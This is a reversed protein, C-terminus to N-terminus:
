PDVRSESYVWGEIEPAASIAVSATGMTRNSEVSKDGLGHYM